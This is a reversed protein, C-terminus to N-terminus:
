DVFDDNQDNSAGHDQRNQGRDTGQLNFDSEAPQYHVSERPQQQEAPQDRLHHLAWCGDSCDGLCTLCLNVSTEQWRLPGYSLDSVSTDKTQQLWKTAIKVLSVNYANNNVGGALNFDSNAIQYHVSERPQHQEAPQGRLNHYM